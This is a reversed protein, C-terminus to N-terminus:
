TELLHQRYQTPSMRNLNWQYRENNYYDVYNAIMQKAEDFTECFQLDLEDKMHGFFSEIPANDLCSGKRSMSQTVKFEKLKEVYDKNTYHTGQDSHIILNKRKEESLSNLLEYIGKHVIELEMSSNLGFSVIEKTALDKTASLYAKRNDGYNIYSIDTSYVKDPIRPNFERNLINPSVLNEQSKKLFISYKSRRRIRTEMGYQKKIRAIKKLNMIIKYKNQLVM